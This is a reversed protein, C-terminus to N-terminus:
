EARAPEIAPDGDLRRVLVAARRDELDVRPQHREGGVDVELLDRRRRRSGRAGVEGQDHVLRRQERGPTTVRGDLLPVEGVRDLLDDEAGLALDHHRVGVALAGGVM